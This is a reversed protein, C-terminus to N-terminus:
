ATTYDDSLLRNNSGVNNNLISTNDTVSNQNMPICCNSSVTKTKSGTLRAIGFNWLNANNPYLIISLDACATCNIARRKPLRHYSASRLQIATYMDSMASLDPGM